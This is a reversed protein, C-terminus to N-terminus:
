KNILEQAAKRLEVTEEFYYVSFNPKYKNPAIKKVEFGRKELEVVIKRSFIPFLSM